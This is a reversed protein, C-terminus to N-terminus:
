FKIGNARLFTAGYTLSGAYAGGTILGLAIKPTRSFGIPVFSLLALTMYVAFGILFIGGVFAFITTKKM